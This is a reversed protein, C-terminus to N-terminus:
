SNTGSLYSEIGFHGKYPLYSKIDFHGKYPVLYTHNSTFIARTIVSLRQPPLENVTYYQRITNNAPIGLQRLNERKRFTWIADTWSSFAVFRYMLTKEALQRYM